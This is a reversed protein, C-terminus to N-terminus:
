DLRGGGRGEVCVASGDPMAGIGFLSNFLAATGTADRYGATSVGALTSVSAGAVIRVTNPVVVVAFTGPGVIACGYPAAGLAPGTTVSGTSSVRRLAQATEDTVFAAGSSQDWVAMNTVGFSASTGAGNVVASTGSGAITSVTGTGLAINRVRNGLKDNVWLTTGDTSLSVGFPQNFQASLLSGNAGGPTSPTGAFLSTSWQAGAYEFQSGANCSSRCVCSVPAAAGGACWYGAPCLSGSANASGELCAWGADAECPLCDELQASANTAPPARFTGAPCPIAVGTPCYAGPPCASCVVSRLAGNAQDGVVVTGQQQLALSPPRNMLSDSGFGNAFGQLAASSGAILRASGSPTILQIRSNHYDTVFVVGSAALAPKCPKNFIPLGLVGWMRTVPDMVRIRSTGQDGVYLTGDARATMGWPQNFLAATGIGNAFGASGTGGITFVVGGVIMRVTHTNYQTVYVAGWGTPPPADCAVGTPNLTAVSVFGDTSGAVGAIGAFTSVAATALEVSRILSNGADALYLIGRASDVFADNPNSISAMTGVGNAAGATGTGILTSVAGSPSLVRVRNFTSESFYVNGAADPTASMGFPQVLAAAGQGDLSGVTGSGAATSVSWVLDLPDAPTGTGACASPCTCPVPPAAGGTCFFGAACLTGNPSTSGAACGWGPAATCPGSCTPASQGTAGWYGAACPQASSAATTTCYAGAPCVGCTVARLSSDCSSAVFAIGGRSPVAVAVGCAPADGPSILASVAGSSANLLRLSGSAPADTVYLLGSSDVALGRPSAFTASTGTGDTSGNVGGRGAVTRVVGTALSIARVVRNGADAVWLTDNWVALGSPSLFRAAAAAGDVYGPTADAGVLTAVALSTLNVTRVAHAATVYAVGGAIAIGAPAFLDAATGIGAGYAANGTGALTTLACSSTNLFRLRNNGADAVLLGGAVVALASPNRLLGAAGVGNSWGRVGPSGACASVYGSATTVAVVVSAGADAVWATAGDASLAVGSPAVFQAVTAVGLDSGPTSGALRPATWVRPLTGAPEAATGAPCLGACACAVPAATGGACAFGRACLTGSPSTSGAGCAWGPAATCPGSCAPTTLGATAGFSGAPCLAPPAGPACYSGLAACPAACRLAALRAGAGDLVYLTAGTADLALAANSSSAACNAGAGSLTTLTAAGLSLARVGTANGGGTEAVYLTGRAADLALAAPGRLLAGGLAPGDAAGPTDALGAVTRVVGALLMRVTTGDSVYVAGAPSVAIGGPYRFRALLASGDVPSGCAATGAARVVSAGAITVARVICTGAESVFLVTRAANLAIGVPANFTAGAGVGDFAGATSSGALVTAIGAAVVVVRNSDAFYVTGSVADAAAAAPAILVGGGGTLATTVTGSAANVARLAGTASDGVALVGGVGVALAAPATFFAGTGAGDAPDAAGGGAIVAFSWVSGISPDAAAGLSPCASPCTCAVPAASGGACSSGVPCLTGTPSTAGAACFSGPPASCPLCAAASGLGTTTGHTGVPCLTPVGGVCWSGLPCASCALARVSHRNATTQDSVFVNAGWAAIGSISLTAAVGWGDAVGGAASGAVTTVVGLPSVLRVRTVDSVFVWNGVAAVATPNVFSAAAGPAGPAPGDAHASVGTGALTTLAGSPSVARLLLSLRDAAVVSGDPLAAVGTVMRVTGVGRPGDVSSAVGTGCLTGMTGNLYLVRM